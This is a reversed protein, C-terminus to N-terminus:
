YVYSSIELLMERKPDSLDDLLTSTYVYFCLDLTSYAVWSAGNWDVLNGGHTPASNDYGVMIYDSGGVSLDGASELVICYKTGNVLTYPTSFNFTVLGYSGGLSSAAIPDSTALAAGTPKGGAGYSGTHAYLKAVISGGPSGGKYLYAKAQSLSKGNGNFSQGPRMTAGNWAYNASQNSESYSDAVESVVTTGPTYPALVFDPAVGAGLPDKTLRETIQIDQHDELETHLAILETVQVNQNDVYYKELVENDAVVILKNQDILLKQLFAIIGMTRLTALDVKWIGDNPGRM